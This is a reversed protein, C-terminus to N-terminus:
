NKSWPDVLTTDIYQPTTPAYQPESPFAPPYSYPQPCPMPQPAAQGFGINFTASADVCVNMPQNQSQFQQQMTYALQAAQQQTASTQAMQAEMLAKAEQVYDANCGSINFNPGCKVTTTPIESPMVIQAAPMQPVNNNLNYGRHRKSAPTWDHFPNQGYTSNFMSISREPPYYDFASQAQENSDLPLDYELCNFDMDSSIDAENWFDNASDRIIDFGNKALIDNCEARFRNLDMKSQSFKSGDLYNVSNALIHIHPNATDIHVYGVMQFGKFIPSDMLESAIDLCERPLPKRLSSTPTFGLTIFQRGLTKNYAKKVGMMSRAADQPFCGRGKVLTGGDTKSSSILYDLLAKMMALSQNKINFFRVASM